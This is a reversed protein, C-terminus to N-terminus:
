RRAEVDGLTNLADLYAAVEGATYNEYEVEGNEGEKGMTIWGDVLKFAQAYADSMADAIPRASEIVDAERWFKIKHKMVVALEAMEKANNADMMVAGAMAMIHKEIVAKDIEEGWASELTAHTEAKACVQAVCEGWKM